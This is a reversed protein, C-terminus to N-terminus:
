GAVLLDDYCRECVRVPNKSAAVTATRSSCEGCFIEGCHRCHHKRVTISFARNCARCEATSRDDTWKKSITTTHKVQLAQNERGLEHMASHADDLKKVLQNINVQLQEVQQEANLCRELLARREDANSHANTQLIVVQGRLDDCEARVVDLSQSTVRWESRANSLNESLAGIELQLRSENVVRDAENTELLRSKEELQVKLKSINDEKLQIVTKDMEAARELSEKESLSTEKLSKLESQLAVKSSILLSQAEELTSLQENLREREENWIREMAVRKKEEEEQIRKNEKEEEALSENVQSFKKKLNELEEELSVVMDSLEQHKHKLEDVEVEKEEKMSQYKKELLDVSVKMEDLKVDKKELTENLEVVQSRSTELKEEIESKSDTLEKSRTVLTESEVKTAELEVFTNQLVAESATLEASMNELKSTLKEIEADKSQNDLVKEEFQSKHDSIQKNLLSIEEEMKTVTTKHGEIQELLREHESGHEVKVQNLMEKVNEKENQLQEIRSQSTMITQQLVSKSERTAELLKELDMNQEEMKKNEEGLMNIKGELEELSEKTKCESTELQSLKKKAEELEMSVNNLECMTASHEQNLNEINEASKDINLQLQENIAKLEGLEKVKTQIEGGVSDITVQMATIKQENEAELNRMEEKRKESERQNTEKMIKVKERLSEVEVRAEQTAASSLHLEEKLQSSEKRHKERMESIQSQVNSLQLETSKLKESNSKKENIEEELNRRLNNIENSAEAQHSISTAQVNLLTDTKEKLESEIKLNEEEAEEKLTRQKTLDDDLELVKNQLTVIISQSDNIKSSLTRLSEEKESEVERVKEEAEEKQKRLKNNEEQLQSHAAAEGDGVEIKTILNNREDRLKTVEGIADERRQTENELKSASSTLQDKLSAIEHNGLALETELGHIKEKLEDCASQVFTLKQESTEIVRSRQSSEEEFRTTQLKLQLVLKEADLLKAEILKREDQHSARMVQLDEDMKRKDENLQKNEAEVAELKGNIQSLQIEIQQKAGSSELELQKNVLKFQNFELALTENKIRWDECQEHSKNIQSKLDDCECILSEYRANMETLETESKEKLSKQTEEASKLQNEVEWKEMKLLDSETRTEEMLKDSSISKELASQVDENLKQLQKKMESKEEKLKNVEKELLLSYSSEKELAASVNNLEEKRIEDMDAHLLRLKETEVAFLKKSEDKEVEKELNEGKLRENEAKYKDFEEQTLLAQQRAEDLLQQLHQREEEVKHSKDESERTMQDMLTQVSVLEKKLVMVDDAGPRQLKTTDDHANSSPLQSELDRVWTAAKELEVSQNESRQCAAEKEREFEDKKAQLDAVAEAMKAAKQNLEEKQRALEENTALAIKMQQKTNELDTCTNSHEEKLSDYEKKLETTYWKEDTLSAQLDKIEAELETVNPLGANQSASVNNVHEVNAFGNVNSLQNQPTVSPTALSADVPPATASPAFNKNETKKPKDNSKENSSDSNPVSHEYDFHIQLAEPTPLGVMCMPCIFGSQESVPPKQQVDNKPSTPTSDKDKNGLNKRIRNFM